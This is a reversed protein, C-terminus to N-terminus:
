QFRIREEYQAREKRTARRASILRIDDGRHTYVVVVIRGLADAGVTVWRTESHSDPDDRTAAMADFFVAEADSFRIGHKRLNTPAKRPDWAVRM